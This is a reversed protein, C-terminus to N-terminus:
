EVAEKVMESGMGNEPLSTPTVWSTSGITIAPRGPDRLNNASSEKKSHTLLGDVGKSGECNGYRAPVVVWQRKTVRENRSNM